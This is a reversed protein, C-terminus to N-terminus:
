VDPPPGCARDGTREIPSPSTREIPSPLDQRASGSVGAAAKRRRGRLAAFLGVVPVNNVSERGGDRDPRASSVAEVLIGRRQFGCRGVPEAALVADCPFDELAAGAQAGDADLKVPQEVLTPSKTIVHAGVVLERVLESVADVSSQVTVFTAASNGHGSLTSATRRSTLAWRCRTTRSTSADARHPKCPAYGVQNPM